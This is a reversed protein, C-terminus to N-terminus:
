RFPSAELVLVIIESIIHSTDIRNRKWFNIEGIKIVDRLVVPYDREDLRHEVEVAAQGGRRGLM